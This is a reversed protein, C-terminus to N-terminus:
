GGQGTLVGYLNDGLYLVSEAQELSAKFTEYDFIGFEQELIEERDMAYSVAIRFNKNEFVSRLVPDPTTLNCVIGSCDGPFGVANLVVRYDERDQNELFTSLNDGTLHRSQFDVQGALAQLNVMEKDQVFTYVVEDIYPLQNGEPDVKWYYPNRKTVFREGARPDSAAVWARIVPYEPWIFPYKLKWKLFDKISAYGEEDAMKQVAEQGVFEPLITKLYHPPGFFDGYNTALNFLFTPYPDDFTLRFHLDDVKEVTCPNGSGPSKYWWDVDGGYYVEPNTIVHDWYFIVDDVTFPVGDSWKMGKRIKFTYATFDESIEWSEAVNPEVVTATRDLRVLWDHSMKGVNLKDDPGTWTRNITGGYKGISEYVEEVYPEEPIREELPPLDGSAVLAAFEPAEKGMQSQAPQVTDEDTQGAAFVVSPVLLGVCLMAVVTICWRKM